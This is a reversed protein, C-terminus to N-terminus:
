RYPTSIHRKGSKFTCVSLCSRARAHACPFSHTRAPAGIINSIELQSHQIKTYPAHLRIIIINIVFIHTHTSAQVTIATCM